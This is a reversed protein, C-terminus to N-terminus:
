CRLIRSYNSVPDTIYSHLYFSIVPHVWDLMVPTKIPLNPHVHSCLALGTSLCPNSATEEMGQNLSCNMLAPSPSINFAPVLSPLNIDEELQSLPSLLLSKRSNEVISMGYHGPRPSLKAVALCEQSKRLDGGAQLEEQTPPMKM